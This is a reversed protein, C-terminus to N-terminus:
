CPFQYNEYTNTALFGLFAQKSEILVPRKIFHKITYRITYGNKAM